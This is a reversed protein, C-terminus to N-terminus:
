IKRSIALRSLGLLKSTDRLFTRYTDFTLASGLCELKLQMIQIKTEASDIDTKARRHERGAM